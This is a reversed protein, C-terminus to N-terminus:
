IYIGLVLHPRGDGEFERLANEPRVIASSSPNSGECGKLGLPKAFRGRLWKPLRRLLHPTGVVDQSGM